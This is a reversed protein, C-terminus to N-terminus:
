RTEENPGSFVGIDAGDGYDKLPRHPISREPRPGIVYHIPVRVLKISHAYFRWNRLCDITAQDLIAHGTSQLTTVNQVTGDPRMYIAFM